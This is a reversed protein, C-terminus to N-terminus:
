PVQAVYHDSEKSPPSHFTLSCPYTFGFRFSGELSREFNCYRACNTTSNGSWASTLGHVGHNIHNILKLTLLEMFKHLNIISSWCKEKKWDGKEQSYSTTFLEEALISVKCLTRQSHVTCAYEFISVSDLYVQQRIGAWLFNKRKHSSEIVIKVLLIINTAIHLSYRYNLNGKSVAFMCYKLMLRESPILNICNNGNQVETTM